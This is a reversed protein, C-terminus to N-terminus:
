KEEGEIPHTKTKKARVICAVSVGYLLVSRPVSPWGIKVINGKLEM